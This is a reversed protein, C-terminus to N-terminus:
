LRRRSDRDFAACVGTATLAFIAGKHAVIEIIKSRRRLFSLQYRSADGDHTDLEHLLRLNRFKDKDNNRRFAYNGRRYVERLRLKRLVNRTEQVSPFRKRKRQQKSGTAALTSVSSRGFSCDLFDQRSSVFSVRFPHLSGPPPGERRTRPPSAGVEDSDQFDTEEDGSVLNSIDLERTREEEEEEDDDDDEEGDDGEEGDDSDHLDILEEDGDEARGESEVDIDDLQDSDLTVAQQLTSLSTRSVALAAAAAAVNLSRGVVELAPRASASAPGSVVGLEGHASESANSDSADSEAGEAPASIAHDDASSM